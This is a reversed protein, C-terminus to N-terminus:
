ILSVDSDGTKSVGSNVLFGANGKILQAQPDHVSSISYSCTETSKEKLNHVLSFNM